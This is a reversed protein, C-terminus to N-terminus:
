SLVRGWQPPTHLKAHVDCQRRGVGCSAHWASAIAAGSPGSQTARFTGFGPCLLKRAPAATPKDHEAKLNTPM